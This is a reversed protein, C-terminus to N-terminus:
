MLRNKKRVTWEAALLLVLIVLVVPHNWLELERQRSTERSHYQLRGPLGAAQHAPFYEGGSAQAMEQLLERNLAVREFELSYEEVFFEGQDSGVNQGGLTVQARYQYDGPPLVPLEGRYHGDRRGSEFLVGEIEDGHPTGKKRSFVKVQAGDMPRYSEDLLRAQFGIRQGSRFVRRLPTVHILQGEERTALWRVCNSWFRDYTQETRNLGTLIFSWRWLPYVAAVLCKGTGAQQAAIAPMPEEGAKLTPHVALVSSGPKSPGIHNLGLFPPIDQWIREPDLVEEQLAMVPHVRGAPTLDVQFLQDRVTRVQQAQLSLPMIDILPSGRQLEFGPGGVLFLGKGESTVQRSFWGQQETTLKAAAADGLIFVDYERLQGESQPLSGLYHDGRGRFVLPTLSVNPDRELSERLFSFDWGPRGWLLFVRMKSKLVRVSLDRRNNEAALEGDQLPVTVRLRLVGEERPVYELSVRQERGEGELTIQQSDLVEDGAILSVPVQTGELGRSQLTVEVPVRSDLYVVDAALVEKLSIDRRPDPSGIGVTFVPLGYTRALSAPNRGLNSVGDSLVVVSQLNEEGQERKVTELAGWLDTALGDAAVSDGQWPLTKEAFRYLVVDARSATEDLLVDELITRAEVLRDFEGDSVSMSGSTDILFAVLPRETRRWILSLIPELIVFILLAIALTRLLFLLTRLGRPLPPNTRRYSWWALGLAALSAILIAAWHHASIDLKLGSFLSYV